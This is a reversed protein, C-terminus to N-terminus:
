KWKKSTRIKQLTKRSDAVFATIFVAKNNKYIQVIVVYNNNAVAVRRSPNYSKKKNDWGAYLEANEDQLAAEIWDIREARITSFRDKGETEYFAHSFDSNQFRVSIDDYTTLPKSCYKDRFHQRYEDENKYKVLPPYAM